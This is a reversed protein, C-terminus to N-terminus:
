RITAKMRHCCYSESGFAACERKLCPLFEEETVMTPRSGLACRNDDRSEEWRVLRKRYPCLVVDESM